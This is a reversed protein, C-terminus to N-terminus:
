LGQVPEPISIRTRDGEPEATYPIMQGSVSTIEIDIITGDVYFTGRSPNPYVAITKKEPRIGSIPGPEGFNPRIMLSGESLSNVPFWKVKGNEMVGNL